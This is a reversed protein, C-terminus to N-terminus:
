KPEPNTFYPDSSLIEAKAAHHLLLLGYHRAERVLNIHKEVDVGDIAEAREVSYKSRTFRLKPDSYTGRVDIGFKIPLFPNHLVAIHYYLDGSFDNRGLAQFYYRDLHIDVPELTLLHDYVRVRAHIAPIHIDGKQRILAMRALHRIFKNQHVYLERADITADATMSATNIDMDPFIGTRVYADATFLGHLNAMQPMMALVNPYSRFFKTLDFEKVHVGADLSINDADPCRYRASAEAHGFNASLYVTDLALIGRKMRIRAGLDTLWLNTYVTADATLNLDIDFNSPVIFPKHRSPFTDTAYAISDAQHSAIHRHEITRAIQNFHLTDFAIDGRVTYLPTAGSRDIDFTGSIGVRSMGDRLFLSRLRYSRLDTTSADLTTVYVPSDYYSATIKGRPISINISKPAAGGSPTISGRWSYVDATVSNHGEDGVDPMAFTTADAAITFSKMDATSAKMGKASLSMDGRINMNLREAALTLSSLNTISPLSVKVGSALAKIPTPGPADVALSAISLGASRSSGDLDLYGDVGSAKVDAPSTDADVDDLSFSIKYVGDAGEARAVLDPAAVDGEGAIRTTIGELRANATFPRGAGNDFDAGFSDASLTTGDPMTVALGRLAATGSFPILQYRSDTIMSVPVDIHLAVEGTGRPRYAQLLRVSRAMDAMDVSVKVNSALRPDTFIDAIRGNLLLALGEGRAKLEDIDCWSHRWDDGNFNLSARLSIDSVTYSEGDTLTYTLTSVPVRLDAVFSPLGGSSFRYPKTMRLSICTRIDTTVGELSPLFQSPLYELLKMLDFASIETRFDDIGSKEGLNMGMTIHSVTNALSMKMDHIRVSFPHFAFNVEGDFNFPIKDCIRVSDVRASLNGHIALDYHDKSDRDLMANDVNANVSFGQEASYLRIGKVDNIRLRNISVYPVEFPEDGSSPIINFNNVSDNLTVMNLSLGQTEVDGLKIRGTLLALVNVSGRLHDLSALSDAGAPLLAKDAAPLRDRHLTRSVIDLSDVEICLKPFTSWLTFRVDSTSIDAYFYESAKKNVIETLRPTIYLTAATVALIIVAVAILITRLIIRWVRGRRPPTKRRADNNEDTHTNKLPSM